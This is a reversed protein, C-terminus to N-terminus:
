LELVLYGHFRLWQAVLRRHCYRDSAEYCLMTKGNLLKAVERPNLNELQKKYEVEYKLWDEDTQASQKWQNLLQQSPALEKLSLGRYSAPTFISIAVRDENPIQLKDAKTFYTTYIM